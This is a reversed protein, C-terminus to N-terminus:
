LVAAASQLPRSVPRTSAPMPTVKEVAMEDERIADMMRGVQGVSGNWSTVTPYVQVTTSLYIRGPILVEPARRNLFGKTYIPEVFPARFIRCSEVDEQKLDPFLRQLAAFWDRQIDEDRVAFRTDKRHLYKTLYIVSRDVGGRDEVSTLTSTEIIGDFPYQEEPTALWYHPTLPRKLFLVTNIVGQFDIDWDIGGAAQRLGSGVTQAFATWPTTVVVQDFTEAGRPTKLVPAGDANLDIGTVPENMRIVTGGDLLAQRLTGIIHRYGGKMYGKCEGKSEGKERNFRTWFWLAPVGAWADGFKAELMPQWFKAFAKRGSLKELWQATTVEDLGTSKVMRGYLGTFGVRLRDLFSLPEFKLLDVAKNLPFIRGSDAYAFTTPKWYIQDTLGLDDLLALLPGDSPLMCHYFKEFTHGDHEFFNGLGGLESSGEILTVARGEKMLRYASTLGSIGGGIVAIRSSSSSAPM